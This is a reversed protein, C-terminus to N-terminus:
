ARDRGSKGGHVFFAKVQGPGPQLIEDALLGSPAEPVTVQISGYDGLRWKYGSEYSRAPSIVQCLRPYRPVLGGPNAIREGERVVRGCIYNLCHVLHEVLNSHPGM